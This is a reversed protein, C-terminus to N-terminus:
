KHRLIFSTPPTEYYSLRRPTTLKKSSYYGWMNTADSGGSFWLPKHNKNYKAFIMMHWGFKGSLKYNCIIDGPKLKLRSTRKYVYIIRYNKLIAKRGSGALQGSRSGYIRLNKPLDGKEQLAWTVYDACFSRRKKKSAEFNTRASKGYRFKAKAIKKGVTKAANFLKQAETQKKTATTAKKATTTTQNTKEAANVSTKTGFGLSLSLIILFGFLISISRFSKMSLM